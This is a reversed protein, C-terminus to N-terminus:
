ISYVPDLLSSQWQPLYSRLCQTRNHQPFTRWTRQFLVFRAALSPRPRYSNPVEIQRFSTSLNLLVKWQNINWILRFPLPFFSSSFTRQITAVYHFLICCRGRGHTASSSSRDAKDITADNADSLALTCGLPVRCCFPIYDSLWTCRLANKAGQRRTEAERAM